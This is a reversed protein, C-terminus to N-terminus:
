LSVPKCTIVRKFAGIREESMTEAGLVAEILFNQESFGVEFGHEKSGTNYIEPTFGSVPAM